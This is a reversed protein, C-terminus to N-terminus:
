YGRLRSLADDASNGGNKKHGEQGSAHNSVNVHVHVSHGKAGLGGSKKKGFKKKKSKPESAVPSEDM